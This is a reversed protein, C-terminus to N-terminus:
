EWDLLRETYAGTKREVYGFRVPWPGTLADPEAFVTSVVPTEERKNRRDARPILAALSVPAVSFRLGSFERGGFELPVQEAQAPVALPLAGVMEALHRLLTRSVRREGQTFVLQGRASSVTHRTIIGGASTTWACGPPYARPGPTVPLPATGFGVLEISESASYGPPAAHSLARSVLGGTLRLAPDPSAGCEEVSPGDSASEDRRATTCSVEREAIKRSVTAGTTLRDEDAPLAGDERLEFTLGRPGLWRGDPSTVQVLTTNETVELAQLRVLARGGEHNRSHSLQYEVFDGVKPRHSSVVPAPAPSPPAAPPAERCGSIMLLVVFVRM